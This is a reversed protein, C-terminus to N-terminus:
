SRATGLEAKIFIKGGYYYVVFHFCFNRLEWPWIRFMKIPKLPEFYLGDYFFNRWRIRRTRTMKSTRSLIKSIFAFDRIITSFIINSSCKSSLNCRFNGIFFNEVTIKSPYSYLGCPFCGVTRVVWLEHFIPIYGLIPFIVWM